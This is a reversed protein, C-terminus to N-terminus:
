AKSLALVRLKGRDMVGRGTVEDGDSLDSLFARNIYIDDVFGFPGNENEKIRIRGSFEQILDCSASSKRAHICTLM